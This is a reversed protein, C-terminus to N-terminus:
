QLKLPMIVKFSTMRSDSDGQGAAKDIRIELNTLEKTLTGHMFCAKVNLIKQAQGLSTGKFSLKDM